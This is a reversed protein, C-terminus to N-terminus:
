GQKSANARKSPRSVLGAASRSLKRLIPEILGHQLAALSPAMDSADVGDLASPRRVFDGFFTALATGFSPTDPHGQQELLTKLYWVDGSLWRHRRGVRYEPVEWLPMGLAWSHLLKPFDVGASIALAVSGPLRANVEMLVPHGSRDRRFEVMSCGDIDAARILADAPGTLDALLPISEFLVSNGGLPPFERYSTQAFRAWIKGSTCFITVADRRGPLWQQMVIQFGAASFRGVLRKAEDLNMASFAGLRSGRGKTQGWSRIPKVVAPYGLENIAARVDGDTTLLVSRPVRIGLQVALALTRAKDVAIDLAAESALPLFTRKELDARRSRLAQISGDHSPLILRAPYADLLDIVADLYGDPDDEFDPVIARLRCCRSQLAPAWVAEARCAVGGVDIGSRTLSRMAALAQRHHADLVLVEPPTRNGTRAQTTVTWTKSTLAADGADRRVRSSHYVTSFVYGFLTSGYSICSAKRNLTWGKGNV